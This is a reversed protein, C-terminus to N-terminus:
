RGRFRPARKEAFAARGEAFDETALLQAQGEEERTLAAELEGLTADNIAAKSLAYSRTPGAALAAVVEGARRELAEGPVVEAVLGAALAEAAPFKAARLALDLARARGISAAVLATAGGDPMLGIRSFALLFYADDSALVLDAVLAFSVGVGAAPGRVAAVVPKPLARVRRIFENIADLGVSAKVDGGAAVLDAGSCFAQGAGTLLVARIGEDSEAQVLAENMRSLGPRSVANLKEPSNITITMVGGNVDVLISETM